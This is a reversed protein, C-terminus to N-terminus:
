QQPIAKEVSRPEYPDSHEHTFRIRHLTGGARWVTDLWRERERHAHRVKWARYRSAPTGAQGAPGRQALDAPLLLTAKHLFQHTESDRVAEGLSGKGLDFAWICRPTNM